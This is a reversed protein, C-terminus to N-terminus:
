AARASDLPDAPSAETAPAEAEATDAARPALNIEGGDFTHLLAVYNVVVNDVLEREEPTIDLLPYDPPPLAPGRRDQKFVALSGRTTHLTTDLNRQRLLAKVPRNPRLTAAWYDAPDEHPCELLIVLAEGPVIKYYGKFCRDCFAPPTDFLAYNVFPYTRPDGDLYDAECYEPADDPWGYQVFRVTSSDELAPSSPPSQPENAEHACLLQGSLLPM